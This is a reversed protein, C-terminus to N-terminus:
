ADRKTIQVDYGLVDLLEVMESYRITGRSLKNNINSVTTPEHTQNYLEIAKTFSMGSLALYSKFMKQLESPM